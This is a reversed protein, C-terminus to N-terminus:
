PKPPSASVLERFELRDRLIELDPDKKPLECNAHDGFLRAAAASKLWRMAKTIHSEARHVRQEAPVSRDKRVDAASRSSVSALNHCDDAPIKPAPEVLQAASTAERIKGTSALAIALRIRYIAPAPPDALKV